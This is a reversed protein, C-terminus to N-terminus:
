LAAAPIGDGDVPPVQTRQRVWREGPRSGARAYQGCYGVCRRRHGVGTVAGCPEGVTRRNQGCGAATRRSTGAVGAGGRRTGTPVLAPRSTIRVSLVY